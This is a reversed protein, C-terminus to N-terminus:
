IKAMRGTRWRSFTLALGRRRRNQRPCLGRVGFTSNVFAVPMKFGMELKNTGQEAALAGGAAASGDYKGNFGGCQVGTLKADTSDANAGSGGSATSDWYQFKHGASGDIYIHTWTDATISAYGGYSMDWGAGCKVFAQGANLGATVSASPVYVWMEIAKAVKTKDSPKIFCSPDGLTGTETIVCKWSGSSGEDEDDGDDPATYTKNVSLDMGFSVTGNKVEFRIADGADKFKLVTGDVTWNDVYLVASAAKIGAGVARPQFGYANLGGRLAAQAKVDFACHTWEGETLALEGSDAWTWNSDAGQGYLKVIFSDAGCSAATGEPLFIDCEITSVDQGGSVDSFQVQLSEGGYADVTGTLTFACKMAGNRFNDSAAAVCMKTKEM